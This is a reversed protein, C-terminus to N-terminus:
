ALHSRTQHIFFSEWVTSNGEILVFNGSDLLIVSTINSTSLMEANVLYSIQKRNSIVLNGDYRISLVFSSDLLPYDRNTVWVPKKYSDDRFWIGLYYNSSSSGGTKFIGLEFVEDILSFSVLTNNDRLNQGPVLINTAESLQFLCSFIMLHVYSKSLKKSLSSLPTTAM